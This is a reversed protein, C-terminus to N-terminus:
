ISAGEIEPLTFGAAEADKISLSGKKEGAKRTREYSIDRYEVFIGAPKMIRYVIGNDPDQFMDGWPLKRMVEGLRVEAEKMRTKAAEFDKVVSLFEVQEPRLLGNNMTPPM